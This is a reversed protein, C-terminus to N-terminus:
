MDNRVERSRPSFDRAGMKKSAPVTKRSYNKAEEILKKKEEEM